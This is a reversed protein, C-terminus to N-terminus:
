RHPRGGNKGAMEARADDTAEFIVRTLHTPATTKTGISKLTQGGVKVKDFPCPITLKNGPLAACHAVAM